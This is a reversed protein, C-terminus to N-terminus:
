KIVKEMSWDPVTFIKGKCYISYLSHAGRGGYVRELSLIIGLQNAWPDNNYEPKLRVLDGKKM